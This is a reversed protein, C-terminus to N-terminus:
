LEQAALSPHALAARLATADLRLGPRHCRACVDDRAASVALGVLGLGAALEDDRMIAADAYHAGAGHCAECGVGAEITPGAPAEGTAHCIACRVGAGGALRAGTTAHSTRQWAAQAAPHCAACAASGVWDRRAAAAVAASAAVLCLALVAVRM